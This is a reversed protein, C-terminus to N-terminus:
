RYRGLEHAAECMAEISGPSANFIQGTSRLVYGGGDMAADLCRRVEDRVGAADTEYLLHENFGGMLCLRDGIRRKADALDVDGSSRNSTLTEIADAGTDAMDELLLTARGCDHFSVLYGADHAAQVCEREYPQM